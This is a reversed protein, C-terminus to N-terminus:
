LAESSTLYIANCQIENLNKLIKTKAKKGVERKRNVIIFLCLKRRNQECTLSSYLLIHDFCRIKSSVFFFLQTKSRLFGENLMM